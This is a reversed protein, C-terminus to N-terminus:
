SPFKRGGPPTAAPLTPAPMFEPGHGPVLLEGRELLQERTSLFTARSFPIMEKVNADADQALVADGAVIVPEAAHVRISVHHQTHGPTALVELGDPLASTELWRRRSAEGLREPHWFLRAMRVVNRVTRPKLHHEAFEPYFQPIVQEYSRAAFLAAYFAHAWEWEARSACVAAETFISNNSCHDLHLHTNVVIDINRPSLGRAKLAAVLADEQISLGTDILVRHNASSVLTCTSSYGTGVLVVDVTWKDSV